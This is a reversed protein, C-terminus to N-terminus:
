ISQGKNQDTIYSGSSSVIFHVRSLGNLPFGVLFQKNYSTINDSTLLPSTKSSLKATEADCDSASSIVLVRKRVGAM